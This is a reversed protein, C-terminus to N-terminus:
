IASGPPTVTTTPQVPAASSIFIRVASFSIGGVLGIEPDPDVNVFPGLLLAHNSQVATLQSAALSGMRVFRKGTRLVLDIENATVRGCIDRNNAVEITACNLERKQM